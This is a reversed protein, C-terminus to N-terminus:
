QRFAKLTYTLAIGILFAGFATLIVGLIRVRRLEGPSSAGGRRFGRTSTWRARLWDSPSTVAYIGNALFMLSFCWWSILVIYRSVQQWLDGSM